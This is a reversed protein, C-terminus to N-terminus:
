RSVKSGNHYTVSAGDPKILRTVAGGRSAECAESFANGYAYSLPAGTYRAAAIARWASATKTITQM